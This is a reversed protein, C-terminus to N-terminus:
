SPSFVALIHCVKEETQMGGTGEVPAAAAPGLSNRVAELFEQTATEALDFCIQYAKLVKNEEAEGPASGKTELLDKLLKSALSPDNLYVFTQTISFYDPGSPQDSFLRVLLRLVQNRFSVKTVVTMSAELLYGLLDGEAGAEVASSPSKGKQPPRHHTSAISEIVDLRRAELAIGLAQRYEGASVCRQFMREVIAEMRPDLAAASAKSALKASAPVVSGDPALSIAPTETESATRLTVYADICQATRTWSRTLSMKYVPALRSSARM